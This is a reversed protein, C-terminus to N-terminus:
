GSGQARRTFIGSRAAATVGATPYMTVTNCVLVNKRFRKAFRILDIIPVAERVRYDYNPRNNLVRKRRVTEM